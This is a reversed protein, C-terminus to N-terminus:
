YVVMQSFSSSLSIHFLSLWCGRKCPPPWVSSNVKLEIESVATWSYAAMLKGDLRARIKKLKQEWKQFVLQKKVGQCRLSGGCGKFTYWHQMFQDSWSSRGRISASCKLLIMSCTMKPKLPYLRSPATVLLPLSFAASQYILSAWAPLSISFTRHLLERRKAALPSALDKQILATRQLYYHKKKGGKRIIALGM